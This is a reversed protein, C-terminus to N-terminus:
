LVHLVNKEDYTKNQKDLTGIEENVTSGRNCAFQFDRGQDDTQGDNRDTCAQGFGCDANGCTEASGIINGETIDDAGVKEVQQNNDTNRGCNEGDGSVCIDQFSIHGDVKGDGGCEEKHQKVTREAANIGCDEQKEEYYIHEHEDSGSHLLVDFFLGVPLDEGPELADDENDAAGSGDDEASLQNNFARFLDRSGEAHAFGEDTEGDNGDTGRQGLENGRDNGCLLAVGANGHTVDHAGADEIDEEDETERTDDSGHGCANCDEDIGTNQDTNANEHEEESIGALFRASPFTDGASEQVNSVRCVDDHSSVIDASESQLVILFSLSPAGAIVHTRWNKKYRAIEPM